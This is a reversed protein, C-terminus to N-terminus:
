ESTQQPVLKEPEPHDVIGRSVAVAERIIKASGLGLEYYGDNSSAQFMGTHASIEDEALKNHNPSFFGVSKDQASPLLVFTRAKPHETSKPPLSTYIRSM